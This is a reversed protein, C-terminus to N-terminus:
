RVVRNRGEREVTQSRIRSVSLGEHFDSHASARLAPRPDRGTVRPFHGGLIGVPVLVSSSPAGQVRTELQEM